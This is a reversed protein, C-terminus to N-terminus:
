TAESNILLWLYEKREAKIIYMIKFEFENYKATIFFSSMKASKRILIRHHQSAKQRNKGNYLRSARAYPEM